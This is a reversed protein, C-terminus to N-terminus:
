GDVPICCSPDSLQTITYFTVLLTCGLEAETEPSCGERCVGVVLQKISGLLLNPFIGEFPRAFDGLVTCAALAVNSDQRGILFFLHLLVNTVDYISSIAELPNVLLLTDKFIWVLGIDNYPFLLLSKTLITLAVIFEGIKTVLM